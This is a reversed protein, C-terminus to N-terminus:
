SKAESESWGGVERALTILERQLVPAPVMYSMGVSAIWLWADRQGPPLTGNWRLALLRQLEDLRGAWLTMCDFGTLRDVNNVKTLEWRAKKRERRARLDALVERSLPLIEDALLDFDWAPATPTIAQVFTNSKSNVTGVLRLVRAADLAMPDAGFRKLVSFIQKQCAAWRSIAQRPIPSHLWVLNLGRGTFTAFSPPPIRNAQLASTAEYLVYEPRCQSYESKYFDLDSFLADIHALRSM